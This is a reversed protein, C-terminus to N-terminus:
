QPMAVGAAVVATSGSRAATTAIFVGAAVAITLACVILLGSFACVRRRHCRRRLPHFRHPHHHCIFRPLLAPAAAM